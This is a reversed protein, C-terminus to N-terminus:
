LRKLDLLTRLAKLRGPTMGVRQHTILWVGVQFGTNEFGVSRVLGAKVDPLVFSRLSLGIGLGDMVATRVATPGSVELLRGIRVQTDELHARLRTYVWSQSSPLILTEGRLETSPVYSQAGIPDDPKVLLCVEDEGCREALLPPGLATVTDPPLLALAADLRETEVLETLPQSYGEQLHLTLWPAERKAAHLLKGTYRTVLHHSLGLKLELHEGGEERSTVRVAEEFAQRVSCAYPLLAEGALTLNVGYATRVYLTRGVAAQLSALQRSVAPQSLGLTEAAQSVSGTQAVICFSMLHEARMPM